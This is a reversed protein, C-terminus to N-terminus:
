ADKLAETSLFDGINLMPCLVLGVPVMIAPASRNHQEDADVLAYRQTVGSGHKVAWEFQLTQGRSQFGTILCICRWDGRAVHTGNAGGVIEGNHQRLRRVFNTTAGVYTHRCGITDYIIYCLWPKSM